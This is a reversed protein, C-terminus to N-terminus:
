IYLTSPLTSLPILLTILNKVKTVKNCNLRKRKFKLTPHMLIVRFTICLNGNKGEENLAAVLVKGYTLHVFRDTAEQSWEQHYAKSEKASEFVDQNDHIFLEESDQELEQFDDESGAATMLVKSSLNRKKQQGRKVRGPVVGTLSCRFTLAPQSLFEEQLSKINDIPVWHYNGYDIYQMLYKYKKKDGEKFMMPQVSRIIGRNWTGDTYKASCVVGVTLNESLDEEVKTKTLCHNHLSQQFSDFNKVEETDSAFNLYFESPSIVHSVIVSYHDSDNSIVSSLLPLAAITHFKICDDRKTIANLMNKNCEPSESRVTVASLPSSARTLNEVECHSDSTPVSLTCDKEVLPSPPTPAPSQAVTTVVPTSECLGSSSYLNPISPKSSHSSASVSLFTNCDQGSTAVDMFSSSSSDNSSISLAVTAEATTDTAEPTTSAGCEPLPQEELEQSSLKSMKEGCSARSRLEVPLDSLVLDDTELGSLSATRKKLVSKQNATTFQKSQCQPENEPSTEDSLNLSSSPSVVPQIFGPSFTAPSFTEPLPPANCYRVIPFLSHQPPMSSFPHMFVPSPAPFAFVSPGCFLHNTLCRDDNFVALKVVCMFSSVGFLAFFHTSQLFQKVGETISLVGHLCSLSSLFLERNIAVDVQAHNSSNATLFLVTVHKGTLLSRFWKKTHEPWQPIGYGKLEPSSLEIFPKVKLSCKIAQCPLYTFRSDLPRLLSLPM